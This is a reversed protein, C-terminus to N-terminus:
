RIEASASSVHRAARRSRPSTSSQKTRRGFQVTLGGYVKGLRELTLFGPNGQGREYRSIDAQTIGTLKSVASQTLKRQQRARVLERALRFAARLDDLRAVADPGRERAKREVSRWFQRFTPAKASSM